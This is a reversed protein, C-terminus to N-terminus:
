VRSLYIASRDAYCNIGICRISEVHSRGSETILRIGYPNDLVPAAYRKQQKLMLAGAAANFASGIMMSGFLPSYAATPIDASLSSRYASEDPLMGDADIINIDVSEGRAPDGGIHVANVACYVSGESGNSLLFFAAGEGPVQCTPNFTFPKIRGDKATTLKHDSVYGLVKGYQDVAGVLVHDCRGQDLWAQALQLAAQFSFQFQSITLTPGKIDLSTAVYSAAANHVSNSFTTPSVAADGHDLIDDLFDFTTVHPGFATSIIIGLKKQSINEIGSNVLADSAAVVSMKSLTDSRRVKKLRAKVPAATLDVLYAPLTGGIVPHVAVEGPKRWGDQLAKELSDIGLGQAFIMGIGAIKM